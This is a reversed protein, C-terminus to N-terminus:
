ILVKTRGEREAILVLFLWLQSTVLFPAKGIGLQFTTLMTYTSLVEAKEWNNWGASSRKIALGLMWLIRLMSSLVVNFELPKWKSLDFSPKGCFFHLINEILICKKEMIFYHSGHSQILHDHLTFLVWHIWM